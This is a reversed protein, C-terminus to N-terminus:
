INQTSDQRYYKQSKIVILTVSTEEAPQYLYWVPARAGNIRHSVCPICLAAAGRCSGLGPTIASLTCAGPLAPCPFAGAVPLDAFKIGNPTYLLFYVCILVELQSGDQGDLIINVPWIQTRSESLITPHLDIKTDKLTKREKKKERSWFSNLLKSFITLLIM